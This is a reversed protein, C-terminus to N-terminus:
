EISPSSPTSDCPKYTPFPLFGVDKGGWGPHQLTPGKHGWVTCRACQRLKDALTPVASNTDRWM